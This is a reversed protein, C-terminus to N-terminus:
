EMNKIIDLINDTKFIKKVELDSCDGDHFCAFLCGHNDAIVNYCTDGIKQCLWNNNNLFLQNEEVDKFELIKNNM